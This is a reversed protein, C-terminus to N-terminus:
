QVWEKRLKIKSRPMEQAAERAGLAELLVVLSGDSRRRFPITMHNLERAQASYRQKGTLTTLDAPSLIM